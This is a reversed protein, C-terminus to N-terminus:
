NVLVTRFYITYAHKNYITQEKYGPFYDIYFITVVVVPLVDFDTVMQILHNQLIVMQFYQLGFIHM